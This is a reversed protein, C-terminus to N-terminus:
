RTPRSEYLYTNAQKVYRTIYGRKRAAVLYHNIQHIARKLTTFRTILPQRCKRGIKGYEIVVTYVNDDPKVSLVYYREIAHTLYIAQILQVEKFKMDCPDQYDISPVITTEDPTDVTKSDAQDRADIVDGLRQTIRERM